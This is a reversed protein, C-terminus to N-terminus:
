VSRGVESGPRCHACRPRNPLRPIDFFTWAVVAKARRPTPMHWFGRRWSRAPSSRRPRAPPLELRPPSGSPAQPARSPPLLSNSTLNRYLELLKGLAESNGGRAEGLLIEPTQETRMLASHEQISKQGRQHPRCAPFITVRSVGVIGSNLEKRSRGTLSRGRSDKKEFCPVM